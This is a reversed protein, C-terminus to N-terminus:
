AARADLGFVSLFDSIKHEIEQWEAEPVSGDVIGAGSFLSLREPQVLGSRIAVAFEAAEPGIWGVPGAYWGRDFKELQRIAQLAEAKPYGGVAPTPHLARLVDMTRVDPHLTGQFRSYLHRGRALKMESPLADARLTESFSALTQQISERVYAHERQEKDSGLLEELLEADARTSAGRPRTGAVAESALTTGQRRLIREPSAGVFATGVEPQFYFHFCGPTAEQLRALLSVPDLTEAFGFVAKRALVVKELSTQRFDRLAQEIGRQWAGAAPLDHRSIPLPLPGSSTQRPDALKRIQGLIEASRAADRPLVLNCALTAEGERLCLEFRPLVFRFVQFPAWAPDPRGDLDFRFGGYYRLRVDEAQAIRRELAPLRELDERTAGTYREATGIAAVAVGDSRGRWYLKQPHPQARLWALPDVGEVPVEVRVLGTASTRELAHSVARALGRRLGDPSLTRQSLASPQETFM